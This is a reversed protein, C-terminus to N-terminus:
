DLRTVDRSGDSALGPRAFRHATPPVSRCLNPSSNLVGYEDLGKTLVARQVHLVPSLSM